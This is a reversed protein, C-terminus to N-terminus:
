KASIQLVNISDNYLIYAIQEERLLLIIKELLEPVLTKSRAEVENHEALIKM